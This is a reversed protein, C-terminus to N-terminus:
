WSPGHKKMYEKAYNHADPGPKFDSSSQRWPAVYKAKPKKPAATERPQRENGGILWSFIALMVLVGAGTAALTPWHTVQPNYRPEADEAALRAYPEQPPLDSIKLQDTM